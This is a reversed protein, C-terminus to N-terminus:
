KRKKEFDEAIEFLRDLNILGDPKESPRMDHMFINTGVWLDAMKSQLTMQWNPTFDVTDPIFDTPWTGKAQLHQYARLHDIDLPNFFELINM